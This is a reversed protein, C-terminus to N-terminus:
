TVRGSGGGGAFGLRRGGRSWRIQGGAAGREQKAVKPVREAEFRGRDACSEDTTAAETTAATSKAGQM